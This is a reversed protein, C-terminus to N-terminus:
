AVSPEQKRILVVGLWIAGIVNLAVTALLIVLGATGPVSVTPLVLGIGALIGCVLCIYGLIRPLARTQLAACGMFLLAWGWANLGAMSIGNQVATFARYASVDKAHAISAMGTASILTGALMLAFAVSGAVVALRTLTPAKARMREQLALAVLVLAIAMIVSFPQSARFANPASEYAAMIKLPDVPTNSFLRIGLRTATLATIGISLVIACVSVISAYGGLKQLKM